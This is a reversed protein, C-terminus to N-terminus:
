NSDEMTEFSPCASFGNEDDSYIIESIRSAGEYGDTSVQVIDGLFFDEGLVFTHNTDMAGDFVIDKKSAALETEARGMIVGLFETDNLDDADPVYRTLDRADVLKERRELGAPETLSDYVSLLRLNPNDDDTYVTAVNKYARDSILLKGTLINEYENSFVVYPNAEQRYSRDQGVTLKFIFTDELLHVHFGVGLPSCLDLLVDYLYGIDYKKNVVLDNLAADNNESFYFNSIGRNANSPAIIHKNLLDLVVSQLPGSAVYTEEIVRRYLLSSLERGTLTVRNGEETDQKPNRSEVFMDIDSVPNHLIAGIPIRQTATSEVPLTLEFDSLASHRVAWVSSIYDDVQHYFALNEDLVQIGM